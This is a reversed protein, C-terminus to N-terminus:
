VTDFVDITQGEKLTVVAKKWGSTRGQFRGMRRPKGHFKMTRVSVVDVSFIEQVARRIEIKNAAPAVEFVYQNGQERIKTGKETILPRVIINRPDKM